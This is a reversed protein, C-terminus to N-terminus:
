DEREARDVRMEQRQQQGEPNFGWVDAVLHGTSHLLCKRTWQLSVPLQCGVGAVGARPCTGGLVQTPTQPTATASRHCQVICECQQNRNM